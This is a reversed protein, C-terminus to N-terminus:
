LTEHGGLWCASFLQSEKHLIEIKWMDCPGSCVMNWKQLVWVFLSRGCMQLCFYWAHIRHSQPLCVHSKKGRQKPSSFKSGANVGLFKWCCKHTAEGPHKHLKTHHWQHRSDSVHWQHQLQATSNMLSRFSGKQYIQFQFSMSWTNLKSVLFCVHINSICNYICM